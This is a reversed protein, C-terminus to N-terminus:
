VAIKVIMRLTTVARMNLAESVNMSKRNWLPLLSSMDFLIHARVDNAEKSYSELMDMASDVNKVTVNYDSM